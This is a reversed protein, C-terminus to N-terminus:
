SLSSDHELEGESPTPYMMKALETARSGVQVRWLSSLMEFRATEYDERELAAIMKKFTAFRSPGLNFMMNVIVQKREPTLRHFWPYKAAQFHAERFDNEFLLDAEEKTIGVELNRGYGITLVGESDYYPKLRLGEHKKIRDKAPGMFKSAM